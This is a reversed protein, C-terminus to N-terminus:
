EKQPNQKKALMTILTKIKLNRKTEAARTFDGNNTSDKSKKPNIKTEAKPHTSNPLPPNLVNRKIL